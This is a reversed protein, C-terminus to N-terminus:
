PADLCDTHYWIRRRIARDISLSMFASESCGRVCVCVSVCVRAVYLYSSFLPLLIGNGEIGAGGIVSFLGFLLM